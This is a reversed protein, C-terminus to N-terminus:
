IFAYVFWSPSFRKQSLVEKAPIDTHVVPTM